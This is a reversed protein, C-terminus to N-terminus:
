YMKTGSAISIIYLLVFLGIGIIQIWALVYFLNIMKNTKRSERVLNVLLEQETKESLKKMKREKKNLVIIM